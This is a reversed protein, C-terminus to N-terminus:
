DAADSLEGLQLECPTLGAGTAGPEDQEATFGPDALGPQHGLETVPQSALISEHESPFAEVL